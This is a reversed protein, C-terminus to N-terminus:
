NHSFVQEAERKSVIRKVITEEVRHDCMSTVTIELIPMTVVAQTGDDPVYGLEGLVFGGFTDYEGLPLEIDLEKAAEALSAAGQIKWVTDSVKEIDCQRPKEDHEQWEGVILEILDRMTVIGAMGGYEDIAVAFYNGTKKMNSFLSAAKMNEPVFYPKRVCSKMVNERSHDKQRFYERADLVGVIDDTDEGCVVYFSHHNEYIKSEWQECDEDAFVCVVDKRHTCIEDVFVDSFDFVNQIFENEQTDITGKQSGSEAMLRIEEETIQEQRHPDVGCLRLISHSVAIMLWVIPFLITQVAHVISAFRLAVGEENQAALKRPIMRGFIMTIICIIMSIAAVCGMDLVNPDVDKGRSGLWIELPERFVLSAYASGLCTCGLTVFQMSALFQEEKAQLKILISVKKSEHKALEELKNSNISMVATQACTFIANLLILAAQLIVTEVMFFRRIHLAKESKEPM